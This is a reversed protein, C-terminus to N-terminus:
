YVRIKGNEKLWFTILVNGNSQPSASFCPIQSALPTGSAPCPTTVLEGVSGDLHAVDFQHYFGHVTQALTKYIGLEGSFGNPYVRGSDVHIESTQSWCGACALDSTGDAVSVGIADAPATIQTSQKNKSGLALSDNVVLAGDDRIFRGSFDNGSGTATTAVLQLADGHSNGKNDGAVGTTNIEIIRQFPSSSGTSWAVTVTVSSGARIAGFSCSLRVGAPDCTGQSTDTYTTPLIVPPIAKTNGKTTQLADTLYAQAINSSGSNIITVTFGADASTTVKAPTPTVFSTGWGPTAASVSGAGIASLTLLLATALAFRGRYPRSVVV